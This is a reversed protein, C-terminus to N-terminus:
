AVICSSSGSSGNDFDVPFDKEEGGTSATKSTAVFSNIITSFYDVPSFSDM